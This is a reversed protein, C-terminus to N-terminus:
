HNLETGLKKLNSSQLALLQALRNLLFFTLILRKRRRRFVDKKRKELFHIASTLINPYTSKRQYFEFYGFTIFSYKVSLM